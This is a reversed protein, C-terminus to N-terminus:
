QILCLKALYSVYVTAYIKQRNWLSIQDLSGWDRCSLATPLFAQLNAPKGQSFTHSPRCEYGDRLLMAESRLALFDNVEDLTM